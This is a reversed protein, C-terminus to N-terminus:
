QSPDDGTVRYYSKAGARDVLAKVLGFVAGHLAAGFLVERSGHDLATANPAQEDHGLASWVRNFVATALLGGVISCVLSTPKYLMKSAKPHNQGSNM